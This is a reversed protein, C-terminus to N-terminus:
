AADRRTAHIMVDSLSNGILVIATALLTLNVLLPLDRATAANWALQGIGPSECMVEIPVCAPFAISVAVGFLALLQPGAIPLIHRALIHRPRVGRARAAVVHPSDQVHELLNRSYGYVYPFVVLAMAWQGPKGLLLFVLALVASPISLCLGSAFSPLLDFILLRYRTGILALSFGLLLGVAVGTGLYSLTVPLRERILEAVPRNFSTSEGLNGHMLGALYRGYFSLINDNRAEKRRLAEVSDRSLRVDFEQQDIGFAPAMRVLTAGVLGGILLTLLLRALHRFASRALNMWGM